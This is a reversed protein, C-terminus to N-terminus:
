ATGEYGCGCVRGLMLLPHLHNKACVRMRDQEEPTGPGVSRPATSAEVSADNRAQKGAAYGATYEQQEEPTEQVVRAGANAGAGMSGAGSFLDGPTIVLARLGNAFTESSLGDIPMYGVPAGETPAIMPLLPHLLGDSTKVGAFGVGNRVGALIAFVNYNRDGWIEPLYMTGDKRPEGVLRWRGDDGMLETTLHIDTGM